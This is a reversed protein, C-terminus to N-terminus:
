PEVSGDIRIAVCHRGGGRIGGGIFADGAAVPRDENDDDVPRTITVFAVTRLGGGVVGCGEFSVGEDCANRSGAGLRAEKAAHGGEVQLGAEDSDRISAIAESSKPAM